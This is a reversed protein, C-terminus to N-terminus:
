SYEIFIFNLDNYNKYINKMSNRKVKKLSSHKKKLFFNTLFSVNCSDNFFTQFFFVSKRNSKIQQKEVFIEKIIVYNIFSYIEFFKGNCCWV